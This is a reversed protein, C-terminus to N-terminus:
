NYTIYKVQTENIATFFFTPHLFDNTVKVSTIYLYSILSNLNLTTRTTRTICSGADEATFELRNSPTRSTIQFQVLQDVSPSFLMPVLINDIRRTVHTKM